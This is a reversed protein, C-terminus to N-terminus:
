VELNLLDRVVCHCQIGDVLSITGIVVTSLSHQPHQIWIFPPVTEPFIDQKQNKIIKKWAHLEVAHNAIIQTQFYTHKKNMKDCNYIWVLAIQIHLKEPSVLHLISYSMGKIFESWLYKSGQCWFPRVWLICCPGCNCWLGRSEYVPETFKVTNHHGM